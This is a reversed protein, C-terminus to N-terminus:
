IFKFKAFIVFFEDVCAEIRPKFTSLQAMKKTSKMSLGENLQCGFIFSQLKKKFKGRM